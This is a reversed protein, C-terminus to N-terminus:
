DKDGGTGQRGRGGEQSNPDERERERKGRERERERQCSPRICTHLIDHMHAFGHSFTPCFSLPLSPTLSPPLSPSPPISPCFSLSFSLFSGSIMTRCACFLIRSISPNTEPSFLPWADLKAHRETMMITRKETIWSTKLSSLTNTWFSMGAPHAEDKEQEKEKEKGKEKEKEKEEQRTKDQRTRKDRTQKTEGPQHSLPLDM